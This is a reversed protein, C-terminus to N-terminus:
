TSPNLILKTVTEPLHLSFFLSPPLSSPLISSSPLYFCPFMSTELIKIGPLLFCKRKGETEKPLATIPNTILSPTAFSAEMSKNEARTHLSVSSMCFLTGFDTGVERLLSEAWTNGGDVSEFRSFYWKLPALNIRALGAWSYALQWVCKCPATSGLILLGKQIKMHAGPSYWRMRIRPDPIPGVHHWVPALGCQHWAGHHSQSSPGPFLAPHQTAKFLHTWSMFTQRSRPSVWHCRERPHRKVTASDSTSICSLTLLRIRRSFPSLVNRQSNRNKASEARTQWTQCGQFQHSPLSEISHM